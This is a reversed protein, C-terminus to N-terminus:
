LRAVSSLKWGPFQHGRAHHTGLVNQWNCIYVCIGNGDPINSLTYLIHWGKWVCVCARARACARARVCVCRHVPPFQFFIICPTSVKRQMQGILGTYSGNSFAGWQGDPPETVTFSCDM